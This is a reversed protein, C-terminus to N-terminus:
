EGDGQDHRVHVPVDGDCTGGRGDSATFAMTYTRGEKDMGAREVRVQALSGTINAHLWDVATNGDGLGNAPQNSSVGDIAVTISDGDPDIINVVGLPASWDHNPPVSLEPQTARAHDCIPPRNGGGVGCDMFDVVTYPYASEKLRIWGCATPKAEGFGHMDTYINTTTTGCSYYTRGVLTPAVYGSSEGCWSVHNAADDAYSAAIEYSYGEWPEVGAPATRLTESWYADCKCSYWLRVEAVSNGAGDHMIGRDVIVQEGAGGACSMAYPDLGDCEDAWCNGVGPDDACQNAELPRALQSGDEQLGCASLLCSCVFLPALYKM